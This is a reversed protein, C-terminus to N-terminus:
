RRVRISFPLCFGKRFQFSFDTPIEKSHRVRNNAPFGCIGEMNIGSQGLKEGMDALAGPRNELIVTLDKM